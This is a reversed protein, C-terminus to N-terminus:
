GAPRLHRAAGQAAAPLAVLAAERPVGRLTEAMPSGPQDIVYRPSLKKQGRQRVLPIAALGPLGSRRRVEDLSEFGHDLQDYFLSGAVALLAGAFGALLALLGTRPSSPKVPVVALSIPRANAQPMDQPKATEAVRLM